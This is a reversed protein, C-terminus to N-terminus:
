ILLILLLNCLRLPLPVVKKQYHNADLDLNVFVLHCFIEIRVQDLCFDEPNFNDIFKSQRAELFQGDLDYSWAHYPCIVRKTSGRVKLFNMGAINASMTFARLVGDKDRIAVISQGQINMTVYQGPDRLNEEHCMFQWSKHFIETKDVNLWHPDIYANKHMSLSKRAEDDWGKFLSEAKKSNATMDNM